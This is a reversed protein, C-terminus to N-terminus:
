GVKVTDLIMLLLLITLYNISFLFMKKAWKEENENKLGIFGIIAWALGLVTAGILYFIGTYGYVTLLISVPVIIVIYRMMALKTVVAGKVVPLLPFGAARYDETRMIGLAWFHPPQWLFLFAFLILAGAVGPTNDLSYYGIVPPMAGSFAGVFTSWTSTRKFWATYIWVYIFLGLIAFLAALMTTGFFLMTLGVIGLVIGYTLVVSPKMLGSPLARKSTRAMKADMDRDLYNNLVTGCAMVLATGVLSCFLVLWSDIHKGSAIWFGAFTAISNSIVIGPKTLRYYDKITARQKVEGHAAAEELSNSMGEIAESAAEDMSITKDM